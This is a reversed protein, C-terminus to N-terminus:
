QPPCIRVSTRGMDAVGFSLLAVQYVLIPKVSTSLERSKRTRKDLVFGLLNVDYVQKGKIKEGKKPLDTRRM